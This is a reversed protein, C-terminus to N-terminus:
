RVREIKDRHIFMILFLMAFLAFFIWLHHNLFWGVGPSLYYSHGGKMHLEVSHSADPASQAWRSLTVFLIWSVVFEAMMIWFIATWYVPPPGIWRYGGVGPM